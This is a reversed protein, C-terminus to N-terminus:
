EPDSQESTMTLFPDSPSVEASENETTDETARIDGPIDISFGNEKAFAIDKRLSERFKDAEEGIISPLEGLVEDSMITGLEDTTLTM